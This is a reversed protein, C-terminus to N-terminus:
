CFEDAMEPDTRILHIFDMPTLYYAKEDYQVVNKNKWSISAKMGKKKMPKAHAGRKDRLKQKLVDPSGNEGDSTEEQLISQAHKSLTEKDIRDLKDKGKQGDVGHLLMPSLDNGMSRITGMGSLLPQSPYHKM